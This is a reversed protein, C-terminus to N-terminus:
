GAANQRRRLLALSFFGGGLLALTAPEPTSVPASTITSDDFAIALDAHVATLLNGANDMFNADLFSAIPDIGDYLGTAFNFGSLPAPSLTILNGVGILPVTLDFVLHGTSVVDLSSSMGLASLPYTQSGTGTLDGVIDTSVSTGGAGRIQLTAFPDRLVNGSSDEVTFPLIIDGVDQGVAFTSNTRLRYDFQLNLTDSNTTASLFSNAALNNPQTPIPQAQNSIFALPNSVGNATGADFAGGAPINLDNRVQAPTSGSLAANEIVLQNITPLKPCPSLNFMGCVGNLASQAGALDGGAGGAWAVGNGCLWGTTIMVTLGNRVMSARPVRM